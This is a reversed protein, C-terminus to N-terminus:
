TLATSLYFLSEIGAPSKYDRVSHDRQKLHAIIREPGNNTSPVEPRLQCLRYSHWDASLRLLLQKVQYAVGAKEGPGPPPALIAVQLRFLRKGGDAPMERLIQAAEALV